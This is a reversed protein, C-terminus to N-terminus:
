DILYNLFEHMLQLSFVTDIEQMSQGLNTSSMFYSM